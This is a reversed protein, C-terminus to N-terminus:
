SQNLNKTEFMQLTLLDIAKRLHEFEEISYTQSTVLIRLINVVGKEFEDKAVIELANLKSQMADLEKRLQTPTPHKELTKQQIEM